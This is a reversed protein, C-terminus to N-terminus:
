QHAVTQNEVGKCQSADDDRISGLSLLHTRKEKENIQIFNPNGNSFRTFPLKTHITTKKRKQHHKWKGM